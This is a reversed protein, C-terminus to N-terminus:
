KVIKDDPLTRERPKNRRLPRLISADDVGPFNDGGGNAEGTGGESGQGEAGGGPAWCIRSIDGLKRCIHCLLRSWRNTDRGDGRRAERGHGRGRGSNGRCRGRDGHDIFFSSTPDSNSATWKRGQYLTRYEAKDLCFYEQHSIIRLKRKHNFYVNNMFGSFEDCDDSGMTDDLFGMTDTPPGLCNQSLLVTGELYSVATCVNKGPVDKLCLIQLSQTLV